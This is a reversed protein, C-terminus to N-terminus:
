NNSNEKNFAHLSILNWVCTHKYTCAHYFSQVLYQVNLPSSAAAKENTGKVWVAIWTIEGAKQCVKLGVHLGWKYCDSRFSFKYHNSFRLSKFGCSKATPLVVCSLIMVHNFM